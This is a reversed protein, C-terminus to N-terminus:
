AAGRSTTELDGVRVSTRPVIARVRTGGGARPEVSCSGGLEEARERMSVLGCGVRAGAPVGNGDDDVVLGVTDAAADVTVTCVAADAHRVVNALAEGAIRYIAVEVAAPLEGVDGSAVVRVSLGPGSLRAAQQEIAGLLGYQDIAPPRLDHVVRRVEALLGTLDHGVDELARDAEDPQHRALNRAARVKLGAAALTPGLGDHLERRLRRREEAIGTVLQERSRQLEETLATARAAAAAQRVVDALLRQDAESRRSGPRPVLLLRGIPVDRYGFPLVVVDSRPSGVEVSVTTGDPRDLEVRVYPSGFAAAVGRATAQLLEDPGPSEELRRALASVVAYPEDRGTLLRDALRQLRVRLPSYLVAVVGAAAVGAVREEVVADVAVFVLLDIGVVAAALAGYMLSRGAVLDIDYLRYRTVAVLVAGSLLANEAAFLLESVWTGNGATDLLATSTMALVLALVNGLGALLMWRLQARLEADAGRFRSIFVAAGCLLSVLAGVQFVAPGIATWLDLLAAPQWLDIGREDVGSPVPGGEAFARWPLLLIHLVGVAMAVLAVIGPVRWRGQPLRGTPFLVLLAPIVVHIIPGFRSGTFVFFTTLPLEGDHALISWPGYVAGFAALVSSAGALVLLWALWHRPLRLALVAGPLLLTLGALASGWFLWDLPFPVPGEPVQPYLVFAAVTLGVGGVATAVAVARLARDSRAPPPAPHM